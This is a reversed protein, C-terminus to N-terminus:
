GFFDMRPIRTLEGAKFLAQYFAELGKVEQEGFDYVLGEFYSKLKRRDLVGQGSILDCFFDIRQQGWKKSALLKHRATVLASRKEALAKRSVVWVGFIFPLGTWELWAQGLDLQYPFARHDRLRLAEDGIALFADPPAPSQLATYIDGTTSSARIGQRALILRLLAASTHTQSSILVSRGNLDQFPFRSLLLVSQVPGQSGIALNPLLLYKEFHRGYEISSTSSIDLEGRAMLENLRAPPGYVFQFANPITGNELPHYIPLVNLYSIRGVTVGFTSCSGAPAAERTSSTM